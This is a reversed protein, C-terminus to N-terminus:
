ARDNKDPHNPDVNERELLLKVVGEHGEVAACGLPARDNNDPRNPDVDERQLLLRVVGEHGKIVDNGPIRSKVPIHSVMAVVPFGFAYKVM